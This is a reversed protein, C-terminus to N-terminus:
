NNYHTNGIFLRACIVEKRVEYQLANISLIIGSSVLLNTKGM